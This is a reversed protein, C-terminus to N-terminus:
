QTFMNIFSYYHGVPAEVDIGVKEDGFCGQVAAIMMVAM